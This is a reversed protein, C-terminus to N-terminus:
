VTPRQSFPLPIDAAETESAARMRVAGVHAATPGRQAWQAFRELAAADGMAVAEVSGDSRNRVWGALQLRRAEACMAYRFGVGQVNGIVSLHRVVM